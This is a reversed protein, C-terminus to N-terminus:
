FDGGGLSLDISLEFTPGEETGSIAAAPNTFEDGAEGFTMRAGLSISMRDFLRYSITPSVIGSLDSLNVLGFLALSADSGLIDGFVTTLGLYHRGFNALDAVGVAPPDEYGEPQAEPDDITLGNTGPNQLLFWAAEYLSTGDFSRDAYGTGNFYYQAISTFSFLDDFENLYRAGLTGEFFIRDNVEYTDLVLELGDEGSEDAASQDRSPRVFVRDSGWLGVAEAFFDIDGVSVTYLGILRPALARQYYAGIGFEGNGVVIEVLPAFALESPRIDDNAIVYLYANNISFPYQLKLSIPGEREATPDEADVATLNLVDAPSFFYGVGWRITHKGFRFFLRDDFDFDSFLEFVSLEVAPATGTAPEEAEQTGADDQAEGEGDPPDDGDLTFVLVGDTNRVEIDGQDNEEATFGEPLNQEVAEASSLDINAALGGADDDLAAELELKGFVRFGAEPRADFFLDAGLNPSLSEDEPDGLAIRERPYDAWRFGASLSGNIRGGWELGDSVLLDEEPRSGGSNEDRDLDLPEEEPAATETEPDSEDAPESPGEPSDAGDIMDPDAFLDSFPDSDQATDDAASEGQSGESDTAGSESSEQGYALAPLGFAAALLLGAFLLRTV